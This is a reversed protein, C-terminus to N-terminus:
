GPYPECCVGNGDGDLRHKDKGVVFFNKATFDACDIDYSVIPICAGIYNPDCPHDTFFEMMKYPDMNPDPYYISEIAVVLEDGDTYKRIYFNRSLYWGDLTKIAEIAEYDDDTLFLGTSQLVYLAIDREDFSDDRVFYWPEFIIRIAYIKDYKNIWCKIEADGEIKYTIISKLIDSNYYEKPYPDTEHEYIYDYIPTHQLAKWFLDPSVFLGIDRTPPIRQAAATGTIALLLFILVFLKKM